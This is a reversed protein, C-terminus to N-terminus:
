NDECEDDAIIQESVYRCYSVFWVEVLFFFMLMSENQRDLATPLVIPTIYINETSFRSLTNSKLRTMSIIPIGHLHLQEAVSTVRVSEGSLSIVIFLDNKKAYKIITSFEDPGQIRYIVIDCNLFLRMIENAVNEQVYGSSYIFIRRAGAILENVRTFDQKAIEEGVQKLVNLASQTIDVLPADESQGLEIKLMMKLDSFGDLSIKKAFRLITTRSVNCEDALDYISIHCCAKKNNLIYRWIILDTPNLKALNKNVLEELKMM